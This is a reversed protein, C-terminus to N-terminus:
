PYARAGHPASILYGTSTMPPHMPTTWLPVVCCSEAVVLTSCSRQQVYHVSMKQHMITIFINPHSCINWCQLFISSCGEKQFHALAFLTIIHDLRCVIAHPVAMPIGLFWCLFIIKGFLCGSLSVVSPLPSFM